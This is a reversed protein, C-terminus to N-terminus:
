RRQAYLAARLTVPQPNNPNSVSRRPVRVVTSSFCVLGKGRPRRIRGTVRGTGKFTQVRQKGSGTKLNVCGINLVAEIPVGPASRASVRAVREAKRMEGSLSLDPLDATVANRAVQRAHSVPAMAFILLLFALLTLSLRPTIRSM